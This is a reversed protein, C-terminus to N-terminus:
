NGVNDSGLEDIEDAAEPRLKLKKNEIHKNIKLNLMEILDLLKM